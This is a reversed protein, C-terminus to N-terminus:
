KTIVVPFSTVSEDNFKLSFQYIGSSLTATNLRFNSVNNMNVVESKVNRGTIDYINVTVKGTHVEQLAITVADNAPNPYAYMVNKAENHNNIGISSSTNLIIAPVIGSSFGSFWQDVGATTNRIPFIFSLDDIQTTSQNYAIDTTEYDIGGDGGIFVDDVFTKVCALYKTNDTLQVPAPFIATVILGSLSNDVYDYFESTVLSLNNFTLSDVIVDNWEYLLTEISVNALTTLTGGATASFSIGTATINGADEHDLVICWTFEDVASATRIHSTRIPTLTTTDWRSKTYYDPQIWFHSAIINDDPFDDGSTNITYEIRYLGDAYSPQSFVPLYILTSDGPNISVASSTQNYLVNSGLTITASLTVGSMVNQGYNAVHAGVPIEFQTANQTIGNPIAWSHALVIDEKFAGVDNAFIGTKNGIMAIATGADIAPRLLAGDAQSIMIVPITVQSGVAGAGPSFPPDTSNQIIIVAVAGANEANQAKVGFECSGRYVVAINGAIQAGNVLANCGLSDEATGDDVLVLQEQVFITDIDHGWGTTAYEFGYTGALGAPDTVNFIIQAAAQRGAIAVVFLALMLLTKKM